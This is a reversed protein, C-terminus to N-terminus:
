FFHVFEIIYFYHSMCLSLAPEYLSKLHMNLVSLLHCIPSYPFKSSFVDIPLELLEFADLVGSTFSDLVVM